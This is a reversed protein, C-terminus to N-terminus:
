RPKDICKITQINKWVYKELSITQVKTQVKAQAIYKNEKSNRRVKKRTWVKICKYQKSINGTQATM